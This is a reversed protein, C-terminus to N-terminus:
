KVRRQHERPKHYKPNTHLQRAAPTGACLELVQYFEPTMTIGSIYAARYCDRNWIRGCICEVVQRTVPHIWQEQDNKEWIAETVCVNCLEKHFSKNQSTIDSFCIACEMRFLFGRCFYFVFSSFYLRTCFPQELIAHANNWYALVRPCVM